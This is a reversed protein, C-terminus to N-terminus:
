ENNIDENLEEIDLEQELLETNIDEESGDPELNAENLGYPAFLTGLEPELILDDEGSFPLSVLIHKVAM